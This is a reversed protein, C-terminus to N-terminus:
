RLNSSDLDETLTKNLFKLSTKKQNNGKLKGLVVEAKDTHQCTRVMITKQFSSSKKSIIKKISYNTSVYKIKNIDNCKYIHTLNPTPDNEKSENKISVKNDLYEQDTLTKSDTSRDKFLEKLPITKQSDSIPSSM